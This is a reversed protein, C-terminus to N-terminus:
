SAQRHEALEGLLGDFAQFGMCVIVDDATENAEAVATIVDPPAESVVEHPDPVTVGYIEVHGGACNTGDLVRGGLPSDYLM